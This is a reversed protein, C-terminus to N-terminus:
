VENCLCNRSNNLGRRDGRTIVCKKISHLTTFVCHNRRIIYFFPTPLSRWIRILRLENNDNFNFFFCCCSVFAYKQKVDPSLNPYSDSLQHGSAKFDCPRTPQHIIVSKGGIEFSSHVRCLKRTAVHGQRVLEQKDVVRFLCLLGGFFCCFLIM